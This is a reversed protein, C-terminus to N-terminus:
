KNHQFPPSFLSFFCRTLSGFILGLTTGKPRDHTAGNPRDNVFDEYSMFLEKNHALLWLGHASINTVEVVSISTGHALSSM